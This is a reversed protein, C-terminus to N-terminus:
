GSRQQAIRDIRIPRPVMPKELVRPDGRLSPHQNAPVEVGRFYGLEHAPVPLEPPARLVILPRVGELVYGYVPLPEGSHGAIRFMNVYLDALDPRVFLWHGSATRFVASSETHLALLNNLTRDDEATATTYPSQVQSRDADAVQYLRYTKAKPADMQFSRIGTLQALEGSGLEPLRFWCDGQVADWAYAKGTYPERPTQNPSTISFRRWMEDRILYLYVSRYTNLLRPYGLDDGNFGLNALGHFMTLQLGELTQLNDLYRHNFEHVMLGVDPASLVLSYGGYIPWQTYSIGYPPAGIAQRPGGNQTQPKGACLMWMCVGADRYPELSKLFAEGTARPQCSWGPNKDADSVWHLGELTVTVWEVELQGRSFAFMFDTYERMGRTRMSEVFAPPTTFTGTLPQGDAGPIRPFTIRADKLFICGM